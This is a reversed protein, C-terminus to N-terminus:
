NRVQRLRYVDYAPAGDQARIVSEVGATLGRKAVQLQFADQEPSNGASKVVFLTRPASFADNWRPDSDVPRDPDNGIMIPVIRDRSCFLFAPEPMDGDNGIFVPRVGPRSEFFSFLRGDADSPQTWSDYYPQPANSRMMHVFSGTRLCLLMALLAGAWRRSVARDPQAALACVAAWFLPVLPLLHYFELGTPSFESLLLYCAFLIWPLAARRSLRRSRAAVIFIAVIPAGLVILSRGRADFIEAFGNLRSAMRFTLDYYRSPSKLTIKSWFEFADRNTLLTVVFPLQPFVLLAACAAALLRKRRPAMGAWPSALAGAAAAAVLGLIWATITSHTWLAAGLTLAAAASLWPRQMRAAHLWLALSLPALVCSAIACHIGVLSSVIWAPTLALFLGAVAAGFLDAGLEFSLFACSFIGLVGFVGNRVQVAFVRQGFAALFPVTLWAEGM